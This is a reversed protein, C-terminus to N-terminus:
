NSKLARNRTIAVLTNTRTNVITNYQVTSTNLVDM